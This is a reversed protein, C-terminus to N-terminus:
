YLQQILFFGVTELTTQGYIECHNISIESAYVVTKKMLHSCLCTNAHNLPNRDSVGPPLGKLLSRWHLNKKLCDEEM